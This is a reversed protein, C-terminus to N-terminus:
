LARAQERKPKKQGPQYEKVPGDPLRRLWDQLAPRQKAKVEEAAFVDFEVGTDFKDSLIQAAYDAVRLRIFEPGERPARFEVRYGPSSLTYSPGGEALEFSTNSLCRSLWLRFPRAAMAEEWSYSDIQSLRQLWGRANQSDPSTRNIFTALLDDVKGNTPSNAACRVLQFWHDVANRKASIDRFWAPAAEDGHRLGLETCHIATAWLEGYTETDLELGPLVLRVLDHVKPQAAEYDWAAYGAIFHHALYTGNGQRDGVAALAKDARRNAAATIRTYLRASDMRLVARQPRPLWQNGRSMRFMAEIASLIPVADDEIVELLRDATPLQRHREYIAALADDSKSELLPFEQWIQELAVRAAFSVPAFQPGPFNRSPYAALTYRDDLSRLTLLAPVAIAGRAVIDKIIADVPGRGLGGYFYRVRSLEARIRAPDGPDLRSVDLAPHALREELDATLSEVQDMLNNVRLHESNTVKRLDRELRLWGLAQEMRGNRVEYYSRVLYRRILSPTLDEAQQLTRFTQEAAKPEGALLLLAPAAMTEIRFLPGHFGLNRRDSERSIPRGDLLSSTAKALDAGGLVRQVPYTLGDWLVARKPEGPLLWGEVAYMPSNDKRSWGFPTDDESLGELRVQLRMYKGGRPDGLHTGLLREATQVYTDDIKCKPPIWSRTQGAIALLGVMGLVAGMVM